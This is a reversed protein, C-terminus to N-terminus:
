PVFHFRVQSLESKCVEQAAYDFRDDKTLNRKYVWIYQFHFTLNIHLKLLIFINMKIVDTYKPPNKKFSVHQCDSSLDDM